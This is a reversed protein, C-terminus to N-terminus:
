LSRAILVKMIEHTGACLRRFPKDRYRYSISYEGRYGHHGFLQRCKQVIKIELETSWYKARVTRLAPTMRTAEGDDPV